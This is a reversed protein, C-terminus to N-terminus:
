PHRTSSHSSITRCIKGALRFFEGRGLPPLYADGRERKRKGVPRSFETKWSPPDCLYSAAPPLTFDISFGNGIYVRVRNNIKKEEKREKGDWEIELPLLQQTSPLTM